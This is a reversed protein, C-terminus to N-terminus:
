DDAFIKYPELNLILATSKLFRVGLIELILRCQYLLEHPIKGMYMDLRFESRLLQISVDSHWSRGIVCPGPSMKGADVHITLV